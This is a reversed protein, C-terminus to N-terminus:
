YRFLKQLLKKCFAAVQLGAYGPFAQLRVIRVRRLRYFPAAAKKFLCCFSVSDKGETDKQKKVGSRPCPLQRNGPAQERGGM